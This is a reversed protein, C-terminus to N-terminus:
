MRVSVDATLKQRALRKLDFEMQASSLAQRAQMKAVRTRENEYIREMIDPDVLSSEEDRGDMTQSVAHYGLWVAYNTQYLEAFAKTGVKKVHEYTKMFDEFVTSYYVYVTDGMQLAKFAVGKLDKDSSKDPPLEPWVTSWQEVDRPSIPIVEFPPVNGQGRKGRGEEPVPTFTFPKEDTIQSGDPKTLTVIAKGEQPSNAAEAVVRVRWGFVGNETQPITSVVELTGAPEFRLGVLGREM